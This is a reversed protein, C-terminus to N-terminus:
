ACVREHLSHLKAVSLIEANGGAHRVVGKSKLANFERSVAERHTGIQAAFDAQREGVRVVARDGVVGVEHARRLLEGRIRAVVTLTALELHRETLNRIRGVLLQSMWLGAQPVNGLFDLFREARVVALLCDDLTRVNASRPLRDIAAIEGFIMDPGMERLIVERGNLSYVSIQVKGSRILYVETTDMGADIIDTKRPVKILHARALFADRLDAPFPKQDSAIGAASETAL